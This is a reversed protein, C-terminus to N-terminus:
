YSARFLLITRLRSLFISWIQRMVNLREDGGADTIVSEYEDNENARKRKTSKIAFIQSVGDLLVKIKKTQDTERGAAALLSAKQDEFLRQKKGLEQLKHGTISQLTTSFVGGSTAM